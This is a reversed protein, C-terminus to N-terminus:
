NIHTFQRHLEPRRLETLKLHITCLLIKLYASHNQNKDLNRQILVQSQSRIQFIILNTSM